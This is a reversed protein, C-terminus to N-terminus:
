FQHDPEDRKIEPHGRGGGGAGGGSGGVDGVIEGVFNPLNRGRWICARRNCWYFDGIHDAEIHYDGSGRCRTALSSRESQEDRKFAVESDADLEAQLHKWFQPNADFRSQVTKWNADLEEFSPHEGSRTGGQTGGSGHYAM